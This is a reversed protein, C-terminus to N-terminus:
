WANCNHSYMDRDSHDNNCTSLDRNSASRSTPCLCDIVIDYVQEVM